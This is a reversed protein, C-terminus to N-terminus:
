QPAVKQDAKQTVIRKLGRRRLPARDLDTMQDGGSQGFSTAEIKSAAISHQRPDKEFLDARTLDHADIGVRCLRRLSLLEPDIQGHM